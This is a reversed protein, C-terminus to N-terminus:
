LFCADHAEGGLEVVLYHGVEGGARVETEAEGRGVEVGDVTGDRGDRLLLFAYPIGSSVAFM